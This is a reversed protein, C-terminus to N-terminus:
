AEVLASHLVPAFVCEVDEYFLKGNFDKRKMLFRETAYLCAEAWLSLVEESNCYLVSEYDVAYYIEFQLLKRRLVIREKEPIAKPHLVVFIFLVEKITDSYNKISLKENLLKELSLAKLKPLLEKEAIYTITFM